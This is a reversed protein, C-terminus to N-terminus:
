LGHNTVLGERAQKRGVLTAAHIRHDVQLYERRLQEITENLQKVQESLGQEQADQQIFRLERMLRSIHGKRLRMVSKGLDERIMEPSLPPDSQLLSLLSEVRARLEIDLGESFSVESEQHAAYQELAVYILRHHTDAFMDAELGSMQRIVALQEPYRVLLALCRAELMGAPDPRGAPEAPTPRRVRPQDEPPGDDPPWEELPWNDPGNEAAPGEPARSTTPRANHRSLPAQRRTDRNRAAQDGQRLADIETALQREDVHIWRALRQVYHTREALNDMAAIIPGLREM